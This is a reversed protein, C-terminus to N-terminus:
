NGRKGDIKKLMRKFEEQFALVARNAKGAIVLSGPEEVSWVQSYSFFSIYISVILLFFSLYVTQLGPDEKIQLGTTTIFETFILNLTQNQNMRAGLKTKAILEGKSDYLYINGTLDNLLVNLNTPMLGGLSFSGLWFNRGSKSIKKLPIQATTREDKQVKIGLIDWDTQYISVGNYVLPENVFIIKRKLESGHTNLVSLDSYFQKVKFEDTYTVWFDNVRWATTQPIRTLKGYKIFNQVHFVEGRPVGEQVTYGGLAGASSGLLVLLISLHVLIPGIRGLLGSYAYNKKGQRFVHYNGNHLHYTSTSMRNTPLRSLLQFTQFRKSSQVFEWLRFKKLSPIQTTYTCALLSTGFVALLTLFWFNTYVTNLQLFTILHWDIFGLISNATPYNEKYFTLTQDQEIFTGLAIVVGITALLGIALNLNALQKLIRTTYFKTSFTM